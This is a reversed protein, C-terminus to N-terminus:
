SIFSHSYWSKISVGVRNPKFPHKEKSRIEAVEKQFQKIREIKKEKMWTQVSKKKFDEGEQEDEHKLSQQPSLSHLIDKM